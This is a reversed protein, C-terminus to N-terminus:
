LLYILLTVARDAADLPLDAVKLVLLEGDHYPELAGIYRASIHQDYLRMAQSFLLHFVIFM